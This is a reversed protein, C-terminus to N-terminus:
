TALLVMLWSGRTAVVSVVSKFLDGIYHMSHIPLIFRMYLQWGILCNVCKLDMEMVPERRYSLNFGVFCYNLLWKCLLISKNATVSLSQPWLDIQLKVYVHALLHWFHVRFWQKGNWLLVCRLVLPHYVTIEPKNQEVPEKLTGSDWLAGPNM